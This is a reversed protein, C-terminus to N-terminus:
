EGKKTTKKTKKKRKKETKTKEVVVEIPKEVPKEVPLQGIGSNIERRRRSASKQAWYALNMSTHQLAFLAQQADREARNLEPLSSSANIRDVVADLSKITEDFLTREDKM